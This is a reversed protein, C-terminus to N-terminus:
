HNTPQLLQKLLQHGRGTYLTSFLRDKQKSQQTTSKLRGEKLAERIFGLQVLDHCNSILQDDPHYNYNGYHLCYVGMDKSVSVDIEFYCGCDIGLKLWDEENHAQILRTGKCIPCPEARQTQNMAVFGNQCITCAHGQSVKELYIRGSEDEGFSILDGDAVQLKERVLKPLTIQGKSTLKGSVLWKM